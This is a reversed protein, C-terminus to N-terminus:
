NEGQMPVYVQEAVATLDLGDPDTTGASLSYMLGPAADYWMCLEVYNDGDTRSQSITGECHGVTVPEEHEWQYYIGSINMLEGEKLAAPEIRACYEDNGITFQMEALKETDLWRYIINEAGDPVGFVTGSVQQLEKETLDTWPNIMGLGTDTLYGVFGSENKESYLFWDELEAAANEEGLLHAWMKMDDSLLSVPTGPRYLQMVDSESLGYAEAKVYRIGGDISEKEQSEDLKLNDIRIECAYEDIQKGLSMQGTFSCCYVTGDPYEEAMEGMESDHFEGSVSGDKLIRMDTSWGGAGSSFSWELGELQDFSVEEAMTVVPCAMLSLSLTLIMAAIKKM